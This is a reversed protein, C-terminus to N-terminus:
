KAYAPSVTDDETRRFRTRIAVTKVCDERFDSSLHLVIRVKSEVTGRVLFRRSLLSPTEHHMHCSHTRFAKGHEYSGSVAYHNM